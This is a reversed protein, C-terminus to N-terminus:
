LPTAAPVGSTPRLCGCTADLLTFDPARYRNLDAVSGHVDEHFSSKGWGGACYKTPPLLGMMNKLGLTVGALTHAKLVPVSILFSDMAIQPLYM